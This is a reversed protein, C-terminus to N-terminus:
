KLAKSTNVYTEILKIVGNITAKFAVIDKAEIYIKDDFFKISSRDLKKNEEHKLIKLLDKDDLSIVSTLM